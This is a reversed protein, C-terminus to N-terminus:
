FGPNQRLAALIQQEKANGVGVVCCHLLILCCARSWCDGGNLLSSFSCSGEREDSSRM